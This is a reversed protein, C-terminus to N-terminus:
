YKSLFVHSTLQGKVDRSRKAGNFSSTKAIFKSIIQNVKFSM